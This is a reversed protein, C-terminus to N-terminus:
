ASEEPVLDFPCAYRFEVFASGQVPVADCETVYGGFEDANCKVAPDVGTGSVVDFWRVVLTLCESVLEVNM